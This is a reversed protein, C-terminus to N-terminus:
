RFPIISEPLGFNLRNATPTPSNEDHKKHEHNRGPKMATVINRGMSWQVLRGCGVGLGTTRQRGPQQQREPDIPRRLSRVRHLLSLQTDGSIEGSGDDPV